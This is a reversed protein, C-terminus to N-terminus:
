TGENVRVVVVPCATPPDDMAAAGCLDRAAEYSLEVVRKTRLHRARDKPASVDTVRCYRLAATNKGYLYLWTGIPYTPSSVMCGVPELDRTRAVREMVGPSYRPAYGEVCEGGLLALLTLLRLLAM